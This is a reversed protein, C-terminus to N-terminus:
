LSVDLHFLAAREGFQPLESVAQGEAARSERSQRRQAATKAKRAVRHATGHLWSAISGHKRISGANRALALFTVQFADEAAHPDDLVSRCVRLAMPGHRAVLARFNAEGAEDRGAVFRDLLEADSLGSVTGARFLTALHGFLEGSRRSGM